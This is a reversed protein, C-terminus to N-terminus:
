VIPPTSPCVEKVCREFAEAMGDVSYNEKIFRRNHEPAYKSRNEFGQRLAARLEAISRADFVSGDAGRQVLEAAGCQRSILLPLGAACAENAVLGWVEVLSPLVLASAFEFERVLEAGEAFGRVNVREPVPFGLQEPQGGVLRLAVPESPSFELSFAEVLRALNKRPIFQGVYLLNWVADTRRAARPIALLAPVNVAHRALRLKRQKIGVSRCEANAADGPVLIRDCLKFIASKLLRALGQMVGTSMGSGSHSEYWLVVPIRVLVAVAITMLIALQSYPGVILADPRERALMRLPTLTLFQSAELRRISLRWSRALVWTHTAAALPNKWQRMYESGGLYVVRLKEIRRGLADYLATKYPAPANTIYCVSLGSM